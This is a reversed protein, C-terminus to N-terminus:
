EDEKLSGYVKAVAGYALKPRRYENVLGKNNYGRARNLGMPDSTRIDAFQWVFDGAYEPRSFFLKICNSILEAQYEETWKINDFTHHGYIAGAGFESIVVPKEGVGMGQLYDAMKDVFDEWTPFGMDYWGVYMNLCVIDCWKYCIDTNSKNSAYTVIRNGGESKLYGYFKEALAYAQETRTNLENFMGWIVISPHNYYEKLMERHMEMGREVIRPDALMEPTFSIGGWM